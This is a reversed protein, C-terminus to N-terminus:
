IYDAKFNLKLKHSFFNVYIHKRIFCAFIMWKFILNKICKGKSIVNITDVKAVLSKM